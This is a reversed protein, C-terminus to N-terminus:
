RTGPEDLHLTAVVGHSEIEVSRGDAAISRLTIGRQSTGLAYASGDILVVQRSGTSVGTLRHQGALLASRAEDTMAVAAPQNPAVPLWSAPVSFADADGLGSRSAELRTRLSVAAPASGIGKTTPATTPATTPTTTPTPAPTPAPATTARASAPGLGDAGGTLRDVVLAAIAVAAIALGAKRQLTLEM